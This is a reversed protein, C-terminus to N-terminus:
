ENTGFNFGAVADTSAIRVTGTRKYKFTTELRDPNTSSIDVDINDQMFAVDAILGRRGLDDAYQTIIQKWQKPKVVKQATVNDNDAALTHDVVNTQELLYYGYRINFDLLLNRVYRFQPPVEGDPHYTTVFDQVQYRGAVLDVTSCGKKVITNRNVYQAMSGIATPTPMDPYSKGGIDLNPTDQATRAALFTANAAAELPMGKSLPAPAIAITVEPKRNTTYTSPDDETSGTIAIFPKMIIGEYRGTPTEPDPIGNFDELADMVTTVTGYTNLVLTNWENGFADLAGSISPTGAGAATKTVTYSLGLADGNTDMEVQVDEATLGKWKTTLTAEYDTSSATMPSGLVNNVADEIKATIDDSDDDKEINVAYIDGDLGNRGAIKVFHTGNGTATGVVTIEYVKASAGAPEAQPYIITPIGGVGSGSNPRLIRMAAYLPSGYGYVDGVQKASTVELPDTSLSGQNAENAEGLIAIRQPLNPSSESFQGKKIVYGVIRSINESGVATSM